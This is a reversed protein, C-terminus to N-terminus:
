PLFVKVTGIIEEGCQMCHDTSEACGDCMVLHRCPLFLTNVPKQLCKNCINSKQLRKYEQRVKLVEPPIPKKAEKASTAAQAQQTADGASGAPKKIEPKAEAQAMAQPAAAVDGGQAIEEFNGSDHAEYLDDGVDASSPLPAARNQENLSLGGVAGQLDEIGDERVIVGTTDILSHGAEQERKFIVDLIRESDIEHKQKTMEAVVSEILKKPYIGLEIVAETAAWRQRNPDADIEPIQPVPTTLIKYVMFKMFDCKPYHKTHEGFGTDSPEWNYVSGNCYPCKSKDSYHTYYFGARALEAPDMPNSSPWDHYSNLRNQYTDYEPSIAVPKPVFPLTINRSGQALHESSSSPDASRRNRGDPETRGAAAVNGVAAQAAGLRSRVGTPLTQPPRSDSQLTGAAPQQNFINTPIPESLSAISLTQGSDDGAGNRPIPSSASRVTDHGNIVGPIRPRLTISKSAVTCQPSKQAHEEFLLLPRKALNDVSLNYKCEYCQISNTLMVFYYGLRALINTDFPLSKLHEQGKFSLIRDSWSSMQISDSLSGNSSVSGIASDTGSSLFKKTVNQLFQSSDFQISPTGQPQNREYAPANSIDSDAEIMGSAMKSELDDM